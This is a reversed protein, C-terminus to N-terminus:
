GNVFSLNPCLNPHLVYALILRQCTPLSMGCLNLSSSNGQQEATAIDCMLEFIRPGDSQSFREELDKWIVYATLYHLVSNSIETSLVNLIWSVVMDNVHDWLSCISSTTPPRLLSGDIFGLKNKANLAMKMAHSWSYYNEGILPKSVLIAGLSDFPHITYPSFLSPDIFPTSTSSNSFITSSEPSPAFSEVM